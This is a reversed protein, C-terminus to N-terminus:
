GIKYEEKERAAVIKEKEGSYGQDGQGAQMHVTSVRM